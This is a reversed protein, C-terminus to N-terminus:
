PVRSYFVDVDLASLRLVNSARTGIEPEIQLLSMLRDFTVPKEIYDLVM